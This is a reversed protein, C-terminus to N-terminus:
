IAHPNIVQLAEIKGFDKLDHTVLILGNTLATAAIIADPIKVKKDRRISVCHEIIEPTITLVTSDDIFEQIKHEVIRNTKWCSLEIQTIVSINPATDLLEGVFALGSEPLTAAFYHSIANTDIM